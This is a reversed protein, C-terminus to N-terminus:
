SFFSLKIESSYSMNIFIETLNDMSHLRSCNGDECPWSLTPSVPAELYNGPLSFCDQLFGLLSSDIMGLTASGSGGKKAPASVIM